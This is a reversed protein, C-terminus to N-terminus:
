QSVNPLLFNSKVNWIYNSISQEVKLIKKMAEDLDPGAQGVLHGEIISHNCCHVFSSNFTNDLQAEAYGKVCDGM